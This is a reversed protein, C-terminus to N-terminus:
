RSGRNHCFHPSGRALAQQKCPMRPGGGVTRESSPEPSSSGTFANLIPEMFAANLVKMAQALTWRGSHCGPEMRWPDPFSVFAQVSLLPVVVRMDPRVESRGDATRLHVGAGSLLSRSKESLGLEKSFLQTLLSVM